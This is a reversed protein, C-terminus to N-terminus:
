SGQVVRDRGFGKSKGHKAIRAEREGQRRRHETIIAKVEDDNLRALYGRRTPHPQLEVGAQKARKRVAAGNIGLYDRVAKLSVM